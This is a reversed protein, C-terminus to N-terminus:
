SGDLWTRLTALDAELRTSRGLLGQATITLHVIRGGTTTVTVGSGRVRTPAWGVRLATIEDRDITTTRLLNRVILQRDSADVGLVALRWSFLVVLLIVALAAPWPLASVGVIKPGLM